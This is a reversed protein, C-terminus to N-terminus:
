SFEMMRAAGARSATQRCPQEFSSIRTAASNEKIIRQTLGDPIPQTRNLM